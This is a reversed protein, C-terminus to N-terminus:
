NNDYNNPRQRVEDVSFGYFSMDGATNWVDWGGAFGDEGATYVGADYSLGCGPEPKYARIGLLDGKKWRLTTDVDDVIVLHEGPLLIYLDHETYGNRKAANCEYLWKARLENMDISWSVVRGKAPTSDDEAAWVIRWAKCPVTLDSIAKRMGRVVEVTKTQPKM